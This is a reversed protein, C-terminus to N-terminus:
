LASWPLGVVVVLVGARSSCCVFLLLVFLCVFSSIAPWTPMFILVFDAPNDIVSERSGYYM